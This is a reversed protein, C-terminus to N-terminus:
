CSVRTSPFACRRSAIPGPRTLSYEPDLVWWYGFSPASLIQGLSYGAVILGFIRETISRDIIQLYPWMSAFYLSFQVAGVFSLGTAVYISRWNTETDDAHSAVSRISCKEPSSPPSDISLLLSM